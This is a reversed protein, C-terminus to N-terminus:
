ASPVRTANLVISIHLYKNELGINDLRAFLQGLLIRLM